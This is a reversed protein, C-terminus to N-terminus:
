IDSINNLSLKLVQLLKNTEAGLINRLQDQAAKWLPLAEELKHRGKETLLVPRARADDGVEFRLLGANELVKLNRSLTSKDLSILDALEKPLLPGLQYIVALLSFQTSKLGASKLEEDYLRSVVRSTKRLLFSVCGDSAESLIMNDPTLHKNISKKM